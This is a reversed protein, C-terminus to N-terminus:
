FENKVFNVNELIWKECFECNWFSMKWLIWMKWVDLKLSNRSLFTTKLGTHVKWLCIRLTSSFFIQLCHCSRFKIVIFRANVSFSGHCSGFIPALALIFWNSNLSDGFRRITVYKGLKFVFKDHVVSSFQSWSLFKIRRPLNVLKSLNVSFECKQFRM